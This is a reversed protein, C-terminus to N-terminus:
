PRRSSGWPLQHRFGSLPELLEQSELSCALSSLHGRALESPGLFTKGVWGQQRPPGAGAGKEM